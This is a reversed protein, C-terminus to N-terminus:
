RSARPWARPMPSDGDRSHRSRSASRWRASCARSTSNFRTSRSRTRCIRKTSSRRFLRRTPRVASRRPSAPRSRCLPIHQDPRRRFVLLGAHDGDGDVCDPPSCPGYVIAGIPWCAALSRFRDSSSRSRMSGPLLRDQPRWSWGTKPASSRGTGISSSCAGFQVRFDRYTFAALMRRLAREGFSTPSGVTAVEAPSSSVEVPRTEAM